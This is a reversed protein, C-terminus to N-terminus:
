DKADHRRRAYWRLDSVRFMTIQVRSAVRSSPCIFVFLLSLFFFMEDIVPFFFIMFSSARSKTAPRALAVPGRAPATDRLLTRLVIVAGGVL